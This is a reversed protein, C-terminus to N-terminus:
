FGFNFFWFYDKNIKFCSYIYCSFVKTWDLDELQIIALEWIVLAHSSDYLQLFTHLWVFFFAIRAYDLAKVYYFLKKQHIYAFPSVHLDDCGLFTGCSGVTYAHLLLLKGFHMSHYGNMHFLCIHVSSSLTPFFLFVVPLSFVLFQM